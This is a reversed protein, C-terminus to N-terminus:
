MGITVAVTVAEPEQVAVGLYRMYPKQPHIYDDSLITSWTFLFSHRVKIHYRIFVQAFRDISKSGSLWGLLGVYLLGTAM